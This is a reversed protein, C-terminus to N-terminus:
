SNAWSDDCGDNDDTDQETSEDMNGVDICEDIRVDLGEDESSQNLLTTPSITLGEVHPRQWTSELGNHNLNVSRHVISSEVEQYTSDVENGGDQDFDIGDDVIPLQSINYVNRYIIKQVMYWPGGLNTDKLYFCKHFKPLCHLHSIWISHKPCILVYPITVFM